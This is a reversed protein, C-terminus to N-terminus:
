LAAPGLQNGFGNGPGSYKWSSGAGIFSSVVQNTRVTMAAIRFMFENAMANFGTPNPHTGDGELMTAPDVASFFDALFVNQGQARRANVLSQLAACFIPMNTAYTSYVPSNIVSKSISTPKGVIIQATPVNSFILNLLGAMNNTAVVLPNRGWGMDNVGLDILFLDATTNTFADAMTHITFNSVLTYGHAAFRGPFAIVAGCIGEHHLQTFNTAPTSTWRGVNTFSYGNSQLLPQLYIRWAGNLACDDTISDGVPMIKLPRSATYNTLLLDARLSTAAFMWLLGM